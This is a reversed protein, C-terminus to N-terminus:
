FVKKKKKGENYSAILYPDGNEYYEVKRGHKLFQNNYNKHLSVTGDNYFRKFEKFLNIQDDKKIRRMIMEKLSTDNPFNVEEKIYRKINECVVIAALEKLNPQSSTYITTPITNDFNFLNNFNMM